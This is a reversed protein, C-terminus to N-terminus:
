TKALDPVIGIQGSSASRLAPTAKDKHGVYLSGDVSLIWADIKLTGSGSLDTRRELRGTALNWTGAEGETFTLLTRGGVAYVISRIPAAHGEAVLRDKGTRADYEIIRSETAFALTQGDPAFAFRTSNMQFLDIRETPKRQWRLKGTDLNRVILEGNSHYSALSRGDPSFAFKWM